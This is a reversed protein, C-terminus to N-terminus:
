PQGKSVSARTGKLEEPYACSVVALYRNAKPREGLEGEEEEELSQEEPSKESKSEQIIRSTQFNHRRRKRRRENPSPVVAHQVSAEACRNPHCSAVWRVLVDAETSTGYSSYSYHRRACNVYSKRPFEGEEQLLCHTECGNHTRTILCNFAKLKLM